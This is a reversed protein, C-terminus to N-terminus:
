SMGALLSRVLARVEDEDLASEPRAVLDMTYARLSATFALFIVRPRLARGLEGREVAREILDLIRGDTREIFRRAAPSAAGLLSTTGPISSVFASLLGRDRVAHRVKALAVAELQGHVSASSAIADDLKEELVAFRAAILAEFLAEKSDFFRYLSGVSYDAERAVDAMSAAQYGSRAFVREAAALIDAERRSRERRRRQEGPPRKKRISRM